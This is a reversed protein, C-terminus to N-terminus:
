HLQGARQNDLIWFWFDNISQQYENKSPAQSIMVTVKAWLPLWYKLLPNNDICLRNNVLTALGFIMAVGSIGIKLLDDHHQLFCKQRSRYGICQNHTSATVSGKSYEHHLALFRQSEKVSLKLIPWCAQWIGKLCYLRGISDNQVSTVIWGKSPRFHIVFCWQHEMSIWMLCQSVTM